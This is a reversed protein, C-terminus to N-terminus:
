PGGGAPRWPALAALEVPEPARDPRSPLAGCARRGAVPPRHRRSGLRAPTVRRSTAITAAAGGAGRDTVPDVPAPRPRPRHGVQTRASRTARTTKAPNAGASLLPKTLQSSSTFM